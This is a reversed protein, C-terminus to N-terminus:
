IILRLKEKVELLERNEIKGIRRLLRKSDFLRIQSLIAVSNNFSKLTFYYRGNKEVSTLPLGLFVENNFKRIVLVPREFSINKGDQEFGVNKGLSIYWVEGKDFLRRASKNLDKKVNNWNDYEIDM